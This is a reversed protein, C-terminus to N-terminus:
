FTFYHGRRHVLPQSDETFEAHEVALQVQLGWGVEAPPTDTLRCGAWASAHAMAPGWDTERWEAMLFPGGPAPAVYGFSDALQRDQWGLLTVVTTRSQRLVDWLDSLPDLVGVVYGPDGDAVLLSSVTLGARRGARASTWVTVPSALRGRLRRIPSREGEPPLFPHEGHITVGGHEVLRGAFFRIPRDPPDAVSLNSYAL